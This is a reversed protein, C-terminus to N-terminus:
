RKRKRETNKRRGKRSRRSKRRRTSKKRRKGGKRSARMRRNRNDCEATHEDDDNACESCCADSGEERPRDICYKCQKQERQARNDQYKVLELIDKVRGYYRVYDNVKADKEAASASRFHEDVWAVISSHVRARDANNRYLDHYFLPMIDTYDPNELVSRVKRALYDGM